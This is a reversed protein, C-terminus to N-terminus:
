WIERECARCTTGDVAGAPHKCAASALQEAEDLAAALDARLVSAETRLQATETELAAIRDTRRQRWAQQRQANTKPM